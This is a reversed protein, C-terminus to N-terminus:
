DGGVRRDPIQRRCIVMAAGIVVRCRIWAGGGVLLVSLADWVVLLAANSSTQRGVARQHRGPYVLSYVSTSVGLAGYLCLPTGM